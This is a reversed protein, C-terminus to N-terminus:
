SKAPRIKGFAETASIHFIEPDATESLIIANARSGEVGDLFAEVGVHNRICSAGNINLLIIPLAREFLYTSGATDELSCTM